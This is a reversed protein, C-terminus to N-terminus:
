PFLHFSRPLSYGGALIGWLSCFRVASFGGDLSGQKVVYEMQGYPTRLWDLMSGKAGRM